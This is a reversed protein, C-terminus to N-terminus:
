HTLADLDWSKPPVFMLKTTTDMRIMQKACSINRAKPYSTGIISFQGSIKALAM